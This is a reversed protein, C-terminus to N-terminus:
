KNLRIFERIWLLAIPETNELSLHVGARYKRTNILSDVVSLEEGLMLYVFPGPVGGYLYSISNGGNLIFFYNHKGIYKTVVDSVKETRYEKELAVADFEYDYPSASVIYAGKKVKKLVDATMALNGTASFIVSSNDVLYNTEVVYCYDNVAKVLKVPNTDSVYPTVGRKVLRQAIGVGVQGYGIVGCRCYDIMINQQRLITNAAHVMAEGALKDETERLESKAVAVVPYKVEGKISEYKELGIQNNEVIGVISLGKKKAIRTFYGGIDMLITRGTIYKEFNDSRSTVVIDVGQNRLQNFIEKDITKPKALVQLNDGFVSKLFLIFKKTSPIIHQMALCSYDNKQIIEITKQSFLSEYYAGASRRYALEDIKVAVEKFREQAAFDDWDTWQYGKDADNKITVPNEDETIALYEFSHHVHEAENKGLNKPIKYSEINLPVDREGPILSRLMFGDSIGTEEALRRLAAQLPTEKPNIHGGPPLLMQLAKYELVLVRKTKKCLLFISATFHGRFNKRDILDADTKIQRNALELAKRGMAASDSHGLYREFLEKIKNDDATFNKNSM